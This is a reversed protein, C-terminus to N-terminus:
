LRDTITPFINMAWFYTWGATVLLSSVRWLLKNKVVFALIIIAVLIPVALYLGVIEAIVLVGANMMTQIEAFPEEM